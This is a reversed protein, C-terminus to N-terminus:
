PATGGDRGRRQRQRGGGRGQRQPQSGTRIKPLAPLPEGSASTYYRAADRQRSDISELSNLWASYGADLGWHAAGEQLLALYRHCCVVHTFSLQNPVLCRM